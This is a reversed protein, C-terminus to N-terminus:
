RLTSHGTNIVPISKGDGVLISPYMCSNFVTSLNNTSSNLYSSAGTDMNWNSNAPDQLTMTNLAQPLYTEMTPTSGSGHGTSALHAQQQPQLSQQPTTFGFGPPSSNPRTQGTPLNLGYQSLLNQQAQILNLLQQHGGLNLGTSSLGSHMSNNHGPTRTTNQNHSGTTRNNRTSDHIFRCDVGWRCFGCGFNRCVERNNTNRNDRARADRDRND